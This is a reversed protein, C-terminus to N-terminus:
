EPPAVTGDTVTIQQAADTTDTVAYSASFTATTAGTPCTLGGTVRIPLSVGASFDLVPPTTGTGDVWPGSVSAPGDPAVTVTCSALGSITTVVGATPITMTGTSGAPDYQLAITWDGNTNNSVTKATTFLVNTPCNGGNNSFTAPTLASSVPGDAATNGPAEPVQGTNGSQNCTVTTSGVVFKATTGGVLSATYAHGAPGVTTGPALAWAPAASMAGLGLGVVAAIVGKRRLPQM